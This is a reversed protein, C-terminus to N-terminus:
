KRSASEAGYKALNWLTGEDITNMKLLRAANNYLEIYPLAAAAAEQAAKAATNLAILADVPEFEQLTKPEETIPIIKNNDFDYFKLYCNYNYKNNILSSFSISPSYKEYNLYIYLNNGAAIATLEEYIKRRTVEGCKKGEYKKIVQLVDPLLRNVTANFAALDAASKLQQLQKKLMWFDNDTFYYQQENEDTFYYIYEYKIYKNYTKSTKAIGNFYLKFFPLAAFVEAGCYWLAAFDSTSTYAFNRGIETKLDYSYLAIKKGDEIIYVNENFVRAFRNIADEKQADFDGGSWDNLLAPRTTYNNLLEMATNLLKENKM